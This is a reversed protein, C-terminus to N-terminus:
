PLIRPTVGGVQWRDGARPAFPVKVRDGPAFAIRDSAHALAEEYQITPQLGSGAAAAQARHLAPTAAEITATPLLGALLAVGSAVLLCRNWPRRRAVHRAPRAARDM